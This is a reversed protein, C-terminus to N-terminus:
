GNFGLEVMNIRRITDRYIQVLDLEPHIKLYERLLMVAFMLKVEQKLHAREEVLMKAMRVVSVPKETDETQIEVKKKKTM